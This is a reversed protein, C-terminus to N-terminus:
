VILSELAEPVGPAVGRVQEPEKNLVAALTSLPTDGHFPRRGTAMEYLIVGFSFIDSRWDVTKGEAQEPSMYGLTGVVTGVGTLSMEITRTASGEGLQAILKA